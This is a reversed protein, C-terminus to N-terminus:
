ALEDHIEYLSDPLPNKQCVPNTQMLNSLTKMTRSCERWADSVDEYEVGILKVHQSKIKCIKLKLMHLFRDENKILVSEPRDGFLM